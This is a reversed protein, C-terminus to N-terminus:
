FIRSKNLAKMLEKKGDTLKNGCNPCYNAALHPLDIVKCLAKGCKSCCVYESYKPRNKKKKPM